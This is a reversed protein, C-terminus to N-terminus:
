DALVEQQPWEVVGRRDGLGGAIQRNLPHDGIVIQGSHDETRARKDSRAIVEVEAPYGVTQKRAFSDDDTRAVVRQRKDVDVIDNTTHQEREVILIRDALGVVDTAVLGQGLLLEEISDCLVDAGGRWTDM